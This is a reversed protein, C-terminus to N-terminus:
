AYGSSIARDGREQFLSRDFADLDGALGGAVLARVLTVVMVESALTAVAHEVDPATQLVETLQRGRAKADFGVGNREVSEATGTTSGRTLVTGVAAALFQHRQRNPDHQFRQSSQHRVPRQPHQQRYALPRIRYGSGRAGRDSLPGRRYRVHHAGSATRQPKRECERVGRPLRKRLQRSANYVLPPGIRLALHVGREFGRTEDHDEPALQSVCSVGPENTNPPFLFTAGSVCAAYSGSWTFNFWWLNDNPLRDQFRLEAGNDIGIANNFVAFLPTDLLQTTDLVNVVTKRFLNISATFRPNFAYQWGGEVYADQEPKLDYVPEGACGQLLVCDQRVDELLPAAYFRGYFAHFTNKGGDWLNLGIRPEFMYGGTYGTSHDYRLGYNLQTYDSIKWNDQAYIGIQSGAQGQDPPATLYYPQNHAGSTAGCGDQYYCAFAQSAVLFERDMDIGVKWTHNALARFDSLRVGWYSAYTNSLLGVNHLQGSGSGSGSDDLPTGCHACVADASFDPTVGLVDNPLDGDYNIRTSRWWPILQVIGNGDKSTVTYNLNSFRDYERQM